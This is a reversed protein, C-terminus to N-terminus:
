QGNRFGQVVGSLHEIDEADMDDMAAKSLDCFHGILALTRDTDSEAHGVARLDRGKLRIGTPHKVMTITELVKVEGTEPNRSKIEIKHKLPYQISANM